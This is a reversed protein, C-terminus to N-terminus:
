LGFGLQRHPCLRARGPADRCPPRSRCPDRRHPPSDITPCSAAPKATACSPGRAATPLLSPRSAAPWRRLCWTALPTPTRPSSSSTWTPTPRPFSRARAARRYIGSSAIARAALGRRRRPWCHSIFNEENQNSIRSSRAGAAWHEKRCLPPRRLRPHPVPRRSERTRKAPHFLEADVGRPM